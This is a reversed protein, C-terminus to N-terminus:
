VLPGQGAEFSRRTEALRAEDIAQFHPEDQFSEWDGGWELGQRKGIAGAKQYLTSEPIYAGNRFVGLDWAVGFNHNSQGGRARTVIRGPRTRGQAFLANQQEYTRTGSIIKFVLGDGRLQGIVETLFQRARRQAGPQLSQVNGETRIDFFGLERAIDLSEMEFQDGAARSKPGFDSDLAGQYFGACKLFRQWFLPDADYDIM